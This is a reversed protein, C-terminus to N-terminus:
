EASSARERELWDKLFRTAVVDDENYLLIAELKRRDKKTLWDEYFAVSEGGGAIKGSRQFGIYKGIDKIGYFYLPFVVYKKVIENLDIMRERFGELAKTGGYKRELTTLRAKEYTGYHYVPCGDPLREIWRLFEKWMAREGDPREALQYEYREEGGKDRVLFGFLYEVERLPDGEIDFFVETEADPFEFPRRIFHRKELLAGAQLALRELTSKSFSTSDEALGDVDMRAADEVTRIGNARLKELTRNKLNYLLTVDSTEEALAKCQDFWPSNKCGSSLYPPPRVGALIRGIEELAEHFQQEFERLPFCLRVAEANLICGEDPRTGQVKKLLEGYFVLQYKHNDTLKEASKIDIPVYHYAGLDSSRDDRREIIDPEGVMGDAMLLGHYIRPAGERMLKLTARFRAANGRGAVEAYKLRGIVEKEHLIGMEMLLEAFKPTRRKKKPDGFMDFWLWHPCAAYKYFMSGTIAAPKKGRM